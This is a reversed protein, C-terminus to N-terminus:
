GFMYAVDLLMGIDGSALLACGTVGRIDSLFGQMPRILVQQQGILEDVAVAIRQEQKCVVVFLHMESSSSEEESRGVSRPSNKLQNSESLFQIPLVEDAALRLMSQGGDASIHFVRQTEARVIRQIANISIVYQVDGVRVVMGEVVVMALPMTLHFHAGRFPSVAGINLDGGNRRLQKALESFNVGDDGINKSVSGFGDSLMLAPEIKEVSWGLHQIRQTISSIDIGEGDDELHVSIHDEHKSLAITIHAQPSKGNQIRQEPTEISQNICFDILSRLPSKLKEVMSLDVDTSDGETVLKVERGAQRAVAELYPFLPTLLLAAPRVRQTIAAEQLRTLIAANHSELQMLKELQEQCNELSQRIAQYAISKKQELTAVGVDFTHLFDDAFLNALAHQMMAQGTVLEGIMELMDISMGQPTAVLASQNKETILAKDEASANVSTKNNANAQTVKDALVAELKLYQGSPDLASLSDVLSVQDFHASILFDFLTRDGEFVTVNSIAQIGSSSLWNLFHTALEEDQNLDARLIYFYHQNNRAQAVMTISEPTLVKHFSAPLGLSHEIQTSLLTGSSVFVAESAEQLLKEIQAMDPVEGSKAADLIIEVDNIYSKTMHLLMSDPEVGHLEARAYLDLLTMSLLAATEKEYFWCAHYIKIFLDKILLINKEINEHQRLGDVMLRMALLSDFIHEACWNRLITLPDITLSTREGEMVEAITVLELYLKFELQEYQIAPAMSATTALSIIEDIVELFRVFGLSDGLVKLDHAATSLQACLEPSHEQKLRGLLQSLRGLPVTLNDLFHYIPDNNEQVISDSFCELEAFPDDKNQNEVLAYLETVLAHAQRVSPTQLTLYANVLQLWDLMGIQEAAHHLRDVEEAFLVISQEADYDVLTREMESLIDHAMSMFIELYVPDAALSQKDIPEFVISELLTPPAPHSPATTTNRTNDEVIKAQQCVLLTHKIRKILDESLEVSVDHHSAVTTELMSRLSDTTELLLQLMDHDFPVGDDRVLGILDEAHHAVSEVVSLGLMRANGKYTHMARFLRAVTDTNGPTHQLALLCEEVEDLSQNGEDAYMSWIENMDFEETM